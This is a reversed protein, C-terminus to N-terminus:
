LFKKCWSKFKVVGEMGFKELSRCAEEPTKEREPRSKSFFKDAFCVIEEELTEPEYGPLGTGTHRECVRALREIMGEGMPSPDFTLGASVFEKRLMEAGIRGHEIYPRTGHCHISPADCERIGIDHLMAANYLFDRDVNWEPHGDAIAVAKEAVQRSHLLLLRRLENDEPYFHDIIDIFVMSVMSVMSVM